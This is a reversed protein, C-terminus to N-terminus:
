KGKKPPFPAASPAKASAAVQKNKKDATGQKKAKEKAKPSKDGM